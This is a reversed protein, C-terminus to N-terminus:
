QWKQETSVEKDTLTDFCYPCITEKEQSKQEHSVSRPPPPFYLTEHSDLPITNDSSAASSSSDLKDTDSLTTKSTELAATPLMSSAKPSNQRRSVMEEYRHRRYLVRKRRLVMTRALRKLITGSTNPFQGLIDREFQSLLTKETYSGDGAKIHFNSAIFDRNDISARHIVRSLKHLRNIGDM